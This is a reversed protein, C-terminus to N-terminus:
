DYSRIKLHEFLDAIVGVGPERRKGLSARRFSVSPTDWECAGRRLRGLGVRDGRYTSSKKSSLVLSTVQKVMKIFLPALHDQPV